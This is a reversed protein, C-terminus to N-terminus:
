VYQCVRERCSARGIQHSEWKQYILRPANIDIKPVIDRSSVLEAMNSFDIIRGRSVTGNFTGKIVLTPALGAKQGVENYALHVRAKNPQHGMTPDSKATM